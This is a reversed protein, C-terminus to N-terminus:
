GGYYFKKKIEYNPANPEEKSTSSLRSYRDGLRIDCLPFRLKEQGDTRRRELELVKEIPQNLIKSIDEPKESRGLRYLIRDVDQYPLGLIEEDTKRKSVGDSPAKELIRKPVGLYKALEKVETKYLGALPFLKGVHGGSNYFSTELETRNTPSVVVGGVKDAYTNIVATCIRTFLGLYLDSSPDELLGPLSNSFSRLTRNIDFVQHNMGFEKAFEKADNLDAKRFNKYNLTIVDLGIERSRVSIPKIARNALLATVASDIGGSLGVVFKKYKGKDAEERLFDTIQNVVENM